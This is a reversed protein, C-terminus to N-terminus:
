GASDGLDFPYGPARMASSQLVRQLLRVVELVQRRASTMTTQMTGAFCERTAQAEIAVAANQTPNREPEKNSDKRKSM